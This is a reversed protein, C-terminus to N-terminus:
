QQFIAIAGAIGLRSHFRRIEDIVSENSESPVFYETVQPRLLVYAFVMSLLAYVAIEPFSHFGSVVVHFGIWLM